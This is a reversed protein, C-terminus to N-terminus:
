VAIGEESCVLADPVSAPMQSFGMQAREWRKCKSSLTQPAGLQEEWLAASLHLCIPQTTPIQPRPRPQLCEKKGGGTEEFALVFILTFIHLWKVTPTFATFSRCVENPWLSGAITEKASGETKSPM